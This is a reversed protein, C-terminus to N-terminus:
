EEPKDHISNNMKAGCFPCYKFREPTEMKDLGLSIHCNSCTRFHENIETTWYARIIEVADVVPASTIPIFDRAIFQPYHEVINNLLLIRDILVSM